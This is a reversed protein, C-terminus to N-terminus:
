QKSKDKTKKIYYGNSKNLTFASPMHNIKKVQGGELYVEIVDLRMMKPSFFEKKYLRATKIIKAQKEPTVASAPRPEHESMSEISRTKVEAFIIEEKGEAIIDIENGGNVYARKKIKYGQKKLYKAAADEGIDGIKRKETNIKLIKM